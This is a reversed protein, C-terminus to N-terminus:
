QHKSSCEDVDNVIKHNIGYYLSNFFHILIFPKTDKQNNTLQIVQKHHYLSPEYQIVPFSTRIPESPNIWNIQQEGMIKNNM